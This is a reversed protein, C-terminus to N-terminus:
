CWPVIRVEPKDVNHGYNGHELSEGHDATFVVDDFEETLHETAEWVRRLNDEYAERVLTNSIHGDNALAYIASDEREEYDDSRMDIDLDPHSHGPDGKNLCKDGGISIDGIFPTHPQLFHVIIPPEYDTVMDALPEPASTGLTEDWALDNTAAMVHEGVHPDLTGGGYQDKIRLSYPHGSIYTVDDWDYDSEIFTEGLWNYTPFDPVQVPFADNDIIDNFSDYRCADFVCVVDWDKEILWDLQSPVNELDPYHATM